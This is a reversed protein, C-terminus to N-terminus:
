DLVRAAKRTNNVAVVLMAQMNDPHTSAYAYEVNIKEHALMDAIGGLAGPANEARVLLVDRDSYKFGADSLAKRMGAKNDVILRVASVDQQESVSMALLNVGAEQLVRTLTALEGPQNPLHVTFQKDTKTRHPHAAHREARAPHRTTPQRKLAQDKQKRKRGGTNGRKRQTGRGATAM